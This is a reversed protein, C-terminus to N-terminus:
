AQLDDLTNINTFGHDPFTIYLHPHSTLVHHLRREGAVLYSFLEDGIKRNILCFVPHTRTPTKVMVVPADDRKGELASFLSDPIGPSDCPLFGIWQHDLHRFAASMGALPGLKQSSHDQITPAYHEYTDIDQNCSIYIADTHRQLKKFIHYILPKGQFLQLGKNKFRM